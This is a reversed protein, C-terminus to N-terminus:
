CADNGAMWEQVDRCPVITATRGGALGVRVAPRAGVSILAFDETAPSPLRVEALEEIRGEMLSLFRLRRRDQSPIAIDPVGDGNFDAVASLGLHRSGRVHNSVDDIDATLELTGARWGWIQLVGATHPEVVVAIDIRGDKDFDAFGVPNLWRFPTGIPPTESSIELSTPGVTVVAVAAGRREYSRVVVIEERGDGDLDIIRPTRDEFVSDKPLELRLVRHERTSVTLVTSHEETDFPSHRYRTTPGSFWAAAVTSTGRVLEGSRLKNDRKPRKFADPNPPALRIENSPTSRQPPASSQQAPASAAAIMAIAVALVPPLLATRCPM